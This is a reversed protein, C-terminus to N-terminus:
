AKHGGIQNNRDMATAGEELNFGKLLANKGFKQKISLVAEQMRREKELEVDEQQQQKRVAEYDTFFDLQETRDAKRPATTEDMVHTAVINLRRVLLNKDVIRDFLDSAAAIIKKSSSTYDDLNFTGHAHKPVQRGYHDKTVPGHYKSRIEQKTLNEIDYGVTVVIQNTMLRKSLLDLALQDAM